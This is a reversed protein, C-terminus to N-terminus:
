LDQLPCGFLWPFKGFLINVVTTLSIILGQNQRIREHSEHNQRIRDHGTLFPCKKFCNVCFNKGLSTKTGSVLINKGGRYFTKKKNHILVKSNNLKRFKVM